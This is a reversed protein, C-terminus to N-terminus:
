AMRMPAGLRTIPDRPLGPRRRPKSNLHAAPGSLAPEALDDEDSARAAVAAEERHLHHLLLLQPLVALDRLGQVLELHHLHPVGEDTPQVVGELVLGPEEEDHVEHSAALDACARGAVAKGGGQWRRAV